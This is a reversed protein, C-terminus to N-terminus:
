HCNELYKGFELDPHQDPFVPQIMAIGRGTILIKCGNFKLSHYLCVIESGEVRGKSLAYKRHPCQDQLAVVRGDEGRFMVVAEGCIVRGLPTHQVENPMAAVYWQQWLFM